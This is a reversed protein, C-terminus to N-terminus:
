RDAALRHALGDLILDLGYDFEDAFAYDKGVVLEGLFRALHPYDGEPPAVDTAFTEEAGDGPTFPLNVETLVFGYVYADLVSFAHAALPMPFGAGCLAGLVADHHRLVAPGPALRSELMGLAWPHRTLAARTSAARRTMATRWPDAPDPLEIQAFVHDALADLLTEKGAVHHYLSMAEVGLEKGVSRMTVAPLGGRDAVAVAAEVIRDRSLPLRTM